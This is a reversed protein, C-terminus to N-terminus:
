TTQSEKLIQSVSVLHHQLSETETDTTQQEFYSTQKSPIVVKKTSPCFSLVLVQQAVTVTSDRIIILNCNNGASTLADSDRRIM